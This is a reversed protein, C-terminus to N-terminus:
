WSRKLRFAGLPLLLFKNIKKCYPSITERIHRSFYCALALFVYVFPMFEYMAGLSSLIPIAYFINELMICFIVSILVLSRIRIKGM